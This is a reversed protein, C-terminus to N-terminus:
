VVKSSIRHLELEVAYFLMELCPKSLTGSENEIFPMRNLNEADKVKMDTQCPWKSLGASFDVQDLKQKKAVCSDKEKQTM